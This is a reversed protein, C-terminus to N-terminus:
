PLEYQLGFNIPNGSGWSVEWIRGQSDSCYTHSPAM